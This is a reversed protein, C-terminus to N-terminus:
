RDLFRSVRFMSLDFRAEGKDLLDAIIEGTVAAFKFGHGSCASVILVQPHEPHSDIIFNEDPTNTYMCVQTHLLEGNLNPIHNEVLFRMDQIEEEGVERDITDIDTAIGHHHLAIKVGDGLDPTGYFISEKAYEWAFVPLKGVQFREVDDVPDFWYLVQREVTLPLKLDPLFSNLWPGNVLVMTSASYTGKETQLTVGDGDPKWGTVVENFRLEAGAEKALELHAEVCNEPFLIGANPEFLGATDSEVDFVPYRRRVQRASLVDYDLGHRDASLRTGAVLLGEKPGLLLAGTLHMLNKGSHEQLERWCEYSRQVLPVYTPHEFYAERIVRSQGHTSGLKHPPEDIDFGIVRKGHRSVHYAAASGMAGLGVIAVDHAPRKRFKM